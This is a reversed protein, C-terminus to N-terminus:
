KKPATQAPAALAAGNPNLIIGNKKLVASAFDPHKEGYTVLRKVFADIAAANTHVQESTRQLLTIDKGALSQQRYLYVTLTGSVVILFVLLVFVQNKLAAIEANNNDSMM